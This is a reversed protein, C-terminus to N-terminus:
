YSTSAIIILLISAKIVVRGHLLIRSLTLTISDKDFWKLLFLVSYLHREHRFFLLIHLIFSFQGSKALLHSLKVLLIFVQLWLDVSSLNLEVQM